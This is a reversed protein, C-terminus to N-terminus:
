TFSWIEKMIKKNDRGIRDLKDESLSDANDIIENAEDIRSKADLPCNKCADEVSSQPQTMNKKKRQKKEM